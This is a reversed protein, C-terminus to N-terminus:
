MYNCKRRDNSDDKRRVEVNQDHRQIIKDRIEEQELAETNTDTNM